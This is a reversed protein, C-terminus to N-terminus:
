PANRAGRLSVQNLIRIGRFVTLEATLAQPATDQIQCARTRFICGPALRFGEVSVVFGRKAWWLRSEDQAGTFGMNPNM